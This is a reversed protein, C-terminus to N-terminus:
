RVFQVMAPEEGDASVELPVGGRLHGLEKLDIGTRDATSAIPGSPIAFRSPESAGGRAALALAYKYSIRTAQL